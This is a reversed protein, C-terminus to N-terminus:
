NGAQADSIDISQPPIIDTLNIAGGKVMMKLIQEVGPPLVINYNHQEFKTPDPMMSLDVQEGLIEAHAKIAATLSKSDGSKVAMAINKRSVDILFAREYDASIDIAKGFIYEAESIDYRAQRETRSYPAKGLVSIIYKHQKYRMRLGHIFLYRDYKTKQKLTLKTDGNPDRLYDIIVDAERFSKFDQTSRLLEGKIKKSM